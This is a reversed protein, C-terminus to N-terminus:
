YVLSQSKIQKTQETAMTYYVGELAVKQSESFLIFGLNEWLINFIHLSFISIDFVTMKAFTHGYEQLHSSTLTYLM